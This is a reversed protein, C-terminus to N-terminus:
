AAKFKLQTIANNLAQCQINLQERNGDDHGAHWGALFINQLTHLDSIEIELFTYNSLVTKTESRKFHIDMKELFCIASNPFPCDIVVPKKTEWPRIIKTDM